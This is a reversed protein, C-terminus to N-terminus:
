HGASSTAGVLRLQRRLTELKKLKLAIAEDTTPVESQLKRLDAMLRETSLDSRNQARPTLITLVNDKIQAFGGDIFWRRTDGSVKIRLEGGRLRAVLPARSPFIGIEGDEATFAVFEAAEDLVTREPTVVM